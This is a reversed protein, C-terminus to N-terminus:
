EKSGVSKKYEALMSHGSLCLINKGHRTVILPYLAYRLIRDKWRNNVGIRKVAKKYLESEICIVYLRQRFGIPEYILRSMIWGNKQGIIRLADLTWKTLHHPPEDLYQKQNILRDIRLNSPVAVWLTAKAAAWRSALNFLQSPDALHELVHFSAIVNKKNTVETVETGIGLTSARLGKNRCEEISAESFDVGYADINSAACKELFIGTGCGIEGVRDGEALTNIVYGFEWRDSAHLNLKNYAYSYWAPDPEKLPDAFHLCCKDCAYIDYAKFGLNCTEILKKHIMEDNQAYLKFQERINLTELLKCSTNACVPCSVRKTEGEFIM